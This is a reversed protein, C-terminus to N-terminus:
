RTVLPLHDGFKATYLDFLRHRHDHEEKAMAEFLDASAPYDARLKNAFTLYIRADEEENDIALALIEAESLDSFRKM